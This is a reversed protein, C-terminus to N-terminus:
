KAKSPTATQGTQGSGITGHGAHKNRCAALEALTQQDVNVSAVSRGERIPKMCDMHLGKGEKHDHLKYGAALCAAELKAHAEKCPHADPAALCFSSSLAMTLLGLLNKM